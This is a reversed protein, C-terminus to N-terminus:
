FDRGTGGGIPQGQRGLGFSNDFPLIKLRLFIGIQKGSNFGTSADDYTVVLEADHLDYTMAYQQAAFRKLFGDYAARMDFSAKGYRLATAYLNLAALQHRIGDYRTGIAMFSPGQRLSLDARINSWTRLAPDYSSLTRLLFDKRIDYDARVGLQQFHTQLGVYDLFDYGTQAGITLQRTAKWTLDSSLLNTSGFQDSGLPSFGQPRNYNYRLNFTSGAGFRYSYGPNLSVLFQATDDSNFSQRFKGSFDFQSAQQPRSRRSWDIDFMTQDVLQRSVSDVFQGYSLSTQFPFEFSRNSILKTSDSKLTFVPTKDTTSYFNSITGVPIARQYELQATAFRLDDSVKLNVDLEKREVNTNDSFSSKNDSLISSWQTQFRPSWNRTDSLAVTDSETTFSNGDNRYRAFSITSSGSRSQVYAQFRNNVNVVGPASLYNNSDLSNDFQLSGWRYQARNHTELQFSKPGEILGYAKLEDQQNKGYRYDGGFANGLRTFYDTRARLTNDGPVDLSFTNKIYYGEIQTHGVVPLPHDRPDELPLVFYPLDLIKHGNIFLKSHRLIARKGPIIKADESQFDYHPEINGCSTFDTDRALIINESGESERSNLYIRDKLITGRFGPLIEAQSKRSAYVKKKFDVTIEDGRVVSTKSLVTVNGRFTFVETNEDGEAEDAFCHYGQFRIELSGSAHVHGKTDRSAEDAHIIRFLRNEDIPQGLNGTKPKSPPFGSPGMPNSPEQGKPLLGSSRLAEIASQTFFAAGGDWTPRTVMLLAALLTSM